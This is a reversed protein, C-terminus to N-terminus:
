ACELDDVRVELGELVTNPRLLSFDADSNLTGSADGVHRAGPSVDSVALTNGDLSNWQQLKGELLTLARGVTV